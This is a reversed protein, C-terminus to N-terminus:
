LWIRGEGLLLYGEPGTTVSAAGKGGREILIVDECDRLGYNVIAVLLPKSSWDKNASVSM